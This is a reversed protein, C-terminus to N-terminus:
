EKIFKIANGDEDVVFYLGNELASIDISLNNKVVYQAITKGLVDIIRIQM